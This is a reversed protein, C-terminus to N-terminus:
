IIIKKLFNKNIKIEKVHNNDMSRAISRKVVMNDTFNRMRMHM